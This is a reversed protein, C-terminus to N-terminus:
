LEKMAIAHIKADLDQSFNTESENRHLDCEDNQQRDAINTGIYSYFCGDLQDTYSNELFLTRRYM